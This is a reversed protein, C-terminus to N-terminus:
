ADPLCNCIYPHFTMGEPCPAHCAGGVVPNECINGSPCQCSCADENFTWGEPCTVPPCTCTCADADFVEFGSCAAACSGTAACYNGPCETCAGDMCVLEGFGCCQRNWKCPQGPGGCRNGGPEGNGNGQGGPAAGATGLGLAVLGGAIGAGFRKLVGRRSDPTALSKTLADFRNSDM